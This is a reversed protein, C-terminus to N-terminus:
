KSSFFPPLAGHRFLQSDIALGGSSPFSGVLTAYGLIVVARRVPAGGV